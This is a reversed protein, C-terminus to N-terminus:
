IIIKAILQQIMRIQEASKILLNSRIWYKNFDNKNCIMIFHFKKRTCQIKWTRGPDIAWTNSNCINMSVATFITNSNIESNVPNEWTKGPHIRPFTELFSESDVQPDVPISRSHGPVIPISRSRGPDDLIANRIKPRSGSVIGPFDQFREVLCGPCVNAM